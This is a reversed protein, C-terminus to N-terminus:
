PRCTRWAGIWSRLGAFSRSLSGGRGAASRAPAGSAALAVRPRARGDIHIDRADDEAPGAPLYDGPRWGPELVSPYLAAGCAALGIVTQAMAWSAAATITGAVPDRAWTAPMAEHLLTFRMAPRPEDHLRM